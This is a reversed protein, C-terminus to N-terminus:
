WSEEVLLKPYFKCQELYWAKLLGRGIRTDDINHFFWQINNFPKTTVSFQYGNYVSGGGAANSIHTIM